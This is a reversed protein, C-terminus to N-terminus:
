AGKKKWIAAGLILWLAGIALFAANLGGGRFVPLIAAGIMLLGALIFGWVVLKAGKTETPM